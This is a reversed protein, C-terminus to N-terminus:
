VVGKEAFFEAYRQDMERTHTRLWEVLFEAVEVSMMRGGNSLKDRYSEARELLKQHDAAHEELEPYGHERMLDEESKFHSRSYDLLRDLVSELASMGKGRSMADHLENILDVLHKHDEDFKAVGVNFDDRWTLLPMIVGATIKNM